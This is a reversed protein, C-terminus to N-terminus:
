ESIGGAPFGAIPSQAASPAAFALLLALAIICAKLRKSMTSRM